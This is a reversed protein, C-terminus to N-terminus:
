QSVFRYSGDWKGYSISSIGNRTISPYSNRGGQIEVTVTGAEGATLLGAHVAATAIDSDDTYVRNEGGWIRGNSKGTVRFTHTTGNKGRYATMNQPATAITITQTNSTTVNPSNGESIDIRDFDKIAIRIVSGDKKHINVTQADLRMGTAALLLATIIFTFRKM